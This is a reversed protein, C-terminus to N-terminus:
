GGSAGFMGWKACLGSRLFALGPLVHKLEVVCVSRVISLMPSGGVSIGAAVPPM